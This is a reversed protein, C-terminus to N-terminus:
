AKFGFSKAIMVGDLINIRGDHNIDAKANWNESTPTSGFAVAWAFMDLIDVKGDGNLDEPKLPAMIAGNELRRYPAVNGDADLIIVDSLVLPFTTVTAPLSAVTFNITALTGNGDPFNSWVGEASPISLVVAIVSLNGQANPQVVADFFTEGLSKFFAGETAMEPDATLIEPYLVSFQVGVIRGSAQANILKVDISVQDGVLSATVLAPDIKLYWPPPPTAYTFTAPVNDFSSLPYGLGTTPDVMIVDTLQLLSELKQGAAPAAIIKLTVTAIVGGGTKAVEPSLLSVAFSFTATTSPPTASHPTGADVTFVKTPDAPTFWNGAPIAASVNQLMSSDYAFNLQYGYVGPDVWDAAM